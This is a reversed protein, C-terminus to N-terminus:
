QDARKSFIRRFEGNADISSKKYVINSFFCLKALDYEGVHVSWKPGEVREFVWLVRYEKVFLPALAM